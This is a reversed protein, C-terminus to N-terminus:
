ALADSTGIVRQQVNDVDFTGTRGFSPPCRSLLAVALKARVHM